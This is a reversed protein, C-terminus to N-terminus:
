FQREVIYRAVQRLREADAGFPELTAIAEDCLSRALAHAGDLGLIAPYTPKDRASDAGQQKGSVSTDSEVDIIDDQVQFALGICSAYQELTALQTADAREAALAGLQVAARILAGTKHQHMDALASQDLQTGVAALDIAQGGVMGQPGAARALLATMRLRTQAQWSGESSIWEFALAQLADGALIATAEDFARHCTPRGRRLDDDDMAPLDDHILSYAHILEVAGAAVDVATETVGFAECSAYALMPRVRKGGGTVSYRMAAYLRELGPHQNDFQQELYADIRQQCAKLYDEFPTM